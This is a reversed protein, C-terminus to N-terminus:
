IFTCKYLMSNLDNNDENNLGSISVIIDNQKISYIFNLFSNFCNNIYNNILPMSLSNSVNLDGYICEDLFNSYSSYIINHINASKSHKFNINDIVDQGIILSLEFLKKNILNFNSFIELILKINNFIYLASINNNDNIISMTIVINEKSYNCNYKMDSSINVNNFTSVIDEIIKIYKYYEYLKNKSMYYKYILSNLNNINYSYKFILDLYNKLNFTMGQSNANCIDNTNCFEDRTGKKILFTLDVYNSKYNLKNKTCNDNNNNINNAQIYESILTLGSKYSTLKVYNNLELLKSHTSVLNTTKNNVCFYKKNIKCFNKSSEKIYIYYYKNNNSMSSLLVNIKRFVNSKTNFNFTINM